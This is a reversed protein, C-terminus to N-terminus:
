MRSLERYKSPTVGEHKKFIRNFYSHQYGVQEAIDNIKQGSNRLPEKAKEIRSETLYDIFNKGTVQKFSRSLMFVNTGCHEACDDLSIDNKYNQRIFRM